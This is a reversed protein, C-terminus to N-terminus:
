NKDEQRDKQWDAAALFKPYFHKKVKPDATSPHEHEVLRKKMNAILEKGDVAFGRLKLEEILLERQNSHATGIQVQGLPLPAREVGAIKMPANSRKMMDKSHAHKTM